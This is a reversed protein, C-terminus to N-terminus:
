GALLEQESLWRQARNQIIRATEEATRLGSYFDALDSEIILWLDQGISQEVSVASEIFARLSNATETTMAYLHIQARGDWTNRIVRPYEEVEGSNNVFTRPTMVNDLVEEFLDIRLPFYPQRDWNLEYNVASKLLLKRLFEWVADAHDTGASIGIPNHFNLLHKGGTRTPIGLAIYDELSVAFCQYNTPESIWSWALVQEERQMRQIDLEIEGRLMVDPPLDSISPLLMATNLLSIFDDNDFNATFTNKDIFGLDTFNLMWYLLDERLILTGFPFPMDQTDHILALMEAPTWIEIDKAFRDRSMITTIGFKNNIFPLTGDSREMASLVNPFFDARDIDPDADILPNLDLLLGRDIMESPPTHIIDPINGTMIDVQFRLWARDAVENANRIWGDEDPVFEAQNLYERIEIRHTASQRNFEVIAQRMEYPITLGGVTLTIKESMEERSVPTLLYLEYDREGSTNTKGTLM